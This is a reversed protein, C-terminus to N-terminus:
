VVSNILEHWFFAILYSIKRENSYIEESHIALWGPYDKRTLPFTQFAKDANLRNFEGRVAEM